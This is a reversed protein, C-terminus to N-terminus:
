RENYPQKCCTHKADMDGNECCPVTRDRRSLSEQAALREDLYQVVANLVRENRRGIALAMTESEQYTNGNKLAAQGLIQYIRDSPKM